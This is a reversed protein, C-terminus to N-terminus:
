KGELAHLREAAVTEAHLDGFIVEYRGDDLKWHMLVKAKDKPGVAKGYYAYDPNYM